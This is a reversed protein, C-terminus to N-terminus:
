PALSGGKQEGLAVRATIYPQGSECACGGEPDRGHLGAHADHHTGPWGERASVGGKEKAVAM